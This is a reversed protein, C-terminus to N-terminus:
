YRRQRQDSERRHRQHEHAALDRDRDHHDDHQARDRNRQASFRGDIRVRHADRRGIADDRKKEIARAVSRSGRERLPDIEEMTTFRETRRGIVKASFNGVAIDEDEVAEEIVSEEVGPQHFNESARGGDAERSRGDEAGEGGGGQPVEAHRDEIRDRQGREHHDEPDYGRDVVLPDKEFDDNERKKKDRYAAARLKQNSEGPNGGRDCKEEAVVDAEVGDAPRQQRQEDQSPPGRM